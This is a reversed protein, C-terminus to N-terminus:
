PNFTLPPASQYDVNNNEGKIEFSQKFISRQFLNSDNNAIDVVSIINNENQTNKKKRNKYYNFLKNIIFLFIILAFIINLIKIISFYLNYRKLKAKSNINERLINDHKKRLNGLKDFNNSNKNNNNNINGHMNNLHIDNKGNQKRPASKILIISIFIFIFNIKRM